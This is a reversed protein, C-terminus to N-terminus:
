THLASLSGLLLEFFRTFDVDYAADIEPLASTAGRRRWDVVTQGATLAGQTEVGVHVRRTAIVSRDIAAAIALSDILGCYAGDGRAALFDMIGLAFATPKGSIAELRARHDATLELRDPLIVDMGIATLNFGAEFVLKAAEPDVSINWESAPYDSTTRIPGANEFGYGGGIIILEEVKSPLLPDRTLALAINTLPGLGILSIEGAHANVTDLILDPASRPDEAQAPLPLRLDGLGDPGHSFSEPPLPRTLPNLGGRAVPIHSAGALELVQRANRSCLDAPLNGSVATIAKVDLRGSGLAFLLAIADDIGPDTDILIKKMERAEEPL